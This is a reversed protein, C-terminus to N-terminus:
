AGGASPELRRPGITAAKKGCNLRARSRRGAAVLFAALKRTDSMGAEGAPPLYCSFARPSGVIIKSLFPDACISKDRSSRGSRRM